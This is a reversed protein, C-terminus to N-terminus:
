GRSIHLYCRLEDLICASRGFMVDSPLFMLVCFQNLHVCFNSFNLLNNYDKMLLSFYDKILMFNYFKGKMNILAGGM